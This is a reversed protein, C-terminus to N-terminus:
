WKNHMEEFMINVKVWGDNERKKLFNMMIKYSEERFLGGEILPWNNKYFGTLSSVDVGTGGGHPDPCAFVIRSCRNVVATGLCMLCPELTTYITVKSSDKKIKDRILKGNENILRLEAHAVWGNNSYIQNRNKSVLEGDIVLVAGVPFDGRDLAIKAEELAIKMFKKDEDSFSM